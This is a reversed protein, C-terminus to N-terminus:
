LYVVVFILEMRCFSALFGGTTSSRWLPMYSCSYTFFPFAPSLESGSSIGLIGMDLRGKPPKGAPPKGPIGPNGIGPNGIGPNGIGPIGISPIGPDIGPIGPDIGPIGPIGPDIGPIGPDIGTIGSPLMGPRGPMDPIGAIPSSMDIDIAAAPVAPCLFFRLTSIGPPLSGRESPTPSRLVGLEMAMNLWSPLLTMFLTAMCSDGLAIESPDSPDPDPIPPPMFKGEGFVKAANPLMTEPLVGRPATPPGKESGTDTGVGTPPFGSGFANSDIGSFFYTYHM